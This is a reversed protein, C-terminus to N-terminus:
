KVIAGTLETLIMDITRGLVMEENEDLKQLVYEKGETVKAFSPEGAIKSGNNMSRNEVGVRVRWFDKTGLKEEISKIGNHEKPGKGMQIKYEGIKIDLDDHIIYLDSNRIKYFTYLSAVAVGSDNMMTMPKALILDETTIVEAKFRNESRFNFNTFQKSIPNQLNSLETKLKELIIFGVNHRTNEYRAGPNGLGVVLKM